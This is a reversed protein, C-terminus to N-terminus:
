FNSLYIIIIIILVLHKHFIMEFSTIKRRLNRGEIKLKAKYAYPNQM